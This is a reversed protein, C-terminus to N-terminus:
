RRDPTPMHADPQNPILHAPGRIEKLYSNYFMPRTMYGAWISQPSLATPLTGVLASEMEEALSRVSPDSLYRSLSSLSRRSAEKTRRSAFLRRIPRTALRAKSYHSRLVKQTAEMRSYLPKTLRRATDLARIASLLETQLAPRGDVDFRVSTSDLVATEIHRAAALAREYTQPGVGHISQLRPGLDKVDRVSHLGASELASLRISEKSANRLASIPIDGLRIRASRLQEAAYAQMAETKTDSLHRTLASALLDLYVSYKLM